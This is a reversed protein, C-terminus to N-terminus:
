GNVASQAHKQFRSSKGLRSVPCYLVRVQTDCLPATWPAHLALISEWPDLSSIEDPVLRARFGVSDAVPKSPQDEKAKIRPSRHCPVHTGGAPNSGAVLANPTRQEIGQAVSAPLVWLRPAPALGVPVTLLACEPYRRLRASCFGCRVGRPPGFSRERTRATRARDRSCVAFRRAFTSHPWFTSTRRRSIRLHSRECRRM